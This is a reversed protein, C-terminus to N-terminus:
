EYDYNKIAGTTHSGIQAMELGPVGMGPMGARAGVTRMMAMAQQMGMGAGLMPMGGMPGLTSGPGGGANRIVQQKDFGPIGSLSMAFGAVDFARGGM